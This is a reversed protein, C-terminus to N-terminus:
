DTVRNVTSTPSAHFFATFKLAILRNQPVFEINHYGLAVM